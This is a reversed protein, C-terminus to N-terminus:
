LQQRVGPESELRELQDHYGNFAESAKGRRFLPLVERHGADELALAVGGYFALVALVLAIYGSIRYTLLWGGVEYLGNFLMRGFALTLLASFYAKAKLALVALIIVVGGFGFLYIGSTITRTGPVSTLNMLGLTLWSTTFLGLTTASMTDRALFAFITALFELPFVFFVLIMGLSKLEAVPIVGIASMGIMLMGLGFSFFGLPLASAIPRLMIRTAQYHNTTTQAM